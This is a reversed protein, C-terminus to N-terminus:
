RASVGLWLPHLWLAFAGYFATGGVLAMGTQLWSPSQPAAAPRRRAARFDLVAWLLFSGFLLLEVPKHNVLLHAFAWLKTALLMPHGLRVKFHSRPLHYAVILWCAPLMLLAMLHRMGLGLGAPLTFLAAQEHRVGAFGWLLLAFGVGVVLSYRGKWGKEGWAAMRAQRWPEAFLRVSHPGFFLILGALFAIWSLDM